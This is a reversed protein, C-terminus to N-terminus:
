ASPGTARLPSLSQSAAPTAVLLDHLYGRRASADPINEDLPNGGAGKRRERAEIRRVDAWQWFASGLSAITSDRASSFELGSIARDHPLGPFPHSTERYRATLGSPSASACRRLRQTLAFSAGFTREAREIVMAVPTAIRARRADDTLRPWDIAVSQACHFVDAIWMLRNAGNQAAHFAVHLLLDTPDFVPVTVGSGLALHRTRSLMTPLDIHFTSRARPTVSIDWHLDLPLGSPGALAVEARALRRIEPWNRDVLSFGSAELVTLAAAFHAPHVFVDVDTFERMDAHPWVADSLVPGKSVAWLIGADAFGQAVHRLDNGAQMQRMLQQHRVADLTRLWDAAEPLGLVRRRLAPLIRHMRGATMLERGDLHARIPAGSNTGAASEVLLASLALRNVSM